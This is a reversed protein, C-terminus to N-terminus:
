LAWGHGTLGRRLHHLLLGVPGFVLTFLLAPLTSLHSFGIARADRAIWGGIFLDFALFHAWATLLGVPHSLLAAVAPLSTMGAGPAAMGLVLGFFLLITYIACLTLPLLGSHIWRTTPVARPRTNAVGM